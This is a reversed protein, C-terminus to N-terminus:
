RQSATYQNQSQNTTSTSTQIVSNHIVQRHHVSSPPLSPPMQTPPPQAAPSPASTSSVANNSSTSSIAGGRTPRSMPLPSIQNSPKLVPEYGSPELRPQRLDDLRSNQSNDLSTQRQHHHSGPHGQGRGQGQGGMPQQQPQQQNQFRIDNQSMAQDWRDEASPQQNTRQVQQGRVQGSLSVSATRNSIPSPGAQSPPKNTPTLNRQRGTPGTANQGANPGVSNNQLRNPGVRDQPGVRQNMQNMVVSKARQSAQSQGQGHGQNVQQGSSPSFHSNEFHQVPSPQGGVFQGGSNAAKAQYPSSIMDSSNNRNQQMAPSAVSRPSQDYQSFQGRSDPRGDGPRTSSNHGSTVASAPSSQAGFQSAESQGFQSPGSHGPGGQGPGFSEAARRQDPAKNLVSQDAPMQPSNWSTPEDGQSSNSSITRHSAPGPQSMPDNLVRRPGQGPISTGGQVSSRFHGQGSPGSPKMGPGMGRQPQQQAWQGDEQGYNGTQPSVPSPGGTGGQEYYQNGYMGSDPDNAMGGGQQGHRNQNGVPGGVQSVPGRQVPGTNPEKVVRKRLPGPGDGHVVKTPKIELAASPSRSFNSKVPQRVRHPENSIQVPRRVNSTVKVVNGITKGAFKSM